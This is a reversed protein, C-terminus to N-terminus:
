LTGRLKNVVWYAVTVMGVVTFTLWVWLIVLTAWGPLNDALFLIIRSLCTIGAMACASLFMAASKWSTM